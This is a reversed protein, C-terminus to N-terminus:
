ATAPQLSRENMGEKLEPDYIPLRIRISLRWAFVSLWLGGITALTILSLWHFTLGQDSSSERQFGPVIMWYLDVFHMVLLLAAVRALLLPDRKIPRSLLLFFPVSFHFLILTIALYQWGNRSRHVYWSNEEPLNGSWIVLYQFFSCYTWFMVSALMLSGLDNLRVPTVIRSWPKFAGLSFVVVVAFSLGSVGQGAIHILGYMTSYWTPELSMAWDVAALTLTFGYAMFGLGSLKQLRRSRRSDGDREENPSSGNLVWTTLVWIGFYVIARWQFGVVNLYAAKRVLSEHHRVLEPDAWPYISAVDLWIPLFLLAMLPLTEYGAEVVRRIMQGWAGGTMGHIMAIGMCGLSLSLWYFFATLYAPYFQERLRLFGFGCVLGGIAAVILGVTSVRRLCALLEPSPKM